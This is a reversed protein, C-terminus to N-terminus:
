FEFIKQIFIRFNKKGEFILLIVLFLLNPWKQSMSVSKQVNLDIKVFKQGFDSLRITQTSFSKKKLKNKKKLISCHVYYDAKL